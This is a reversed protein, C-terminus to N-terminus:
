CPIKSLSNRRNLGDLPTKIKKECGRKRLSLTLKFIPSPESAFLILSSPWFAALEEESSNREGLNNLSAKLLIDLAKLSDVM